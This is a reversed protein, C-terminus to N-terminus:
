EQGGVGQDRVGLEVVTEGVCRDMVVVLGGAAARKAADESSIGLQLWLVKAGIAIASDAIAPAADPRRFVDVIDVPEPIAELTPYARQGLVETEGPHVPIVLFGRGLLLKMIRHSPRAPDSSAGVMAIVPSASLIQRLVDLPPNVHPM